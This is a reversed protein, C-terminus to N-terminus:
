RRRRTGLVTVGGGFALLLAATPEPIPQEGTITLLAEAMFPNLVSGETAVTFGSGGNVATINMKLAVTEPGIQPALSGGTVHNFTTTFLADTGPPGVAGALTSANLSGSLLLTNSADYISVNGGSFNQMMLGFPFVTASGVRTIGNLTVSASLPPIDPIGSLFGQFDVATNQEGTTGANLDDVTSLIGADFKINSATTDPNLKLITGAQTASAVVGIVACIALIRLVGRYTGLM